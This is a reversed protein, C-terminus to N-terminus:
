ICGLLEWVVRSLHHTYTYKSVHIYIWYIHIYGISAVHGICIDIWTNKRWVLRRRKRNRESPLQASPPCMIYLVLPDPLYPANTSSIPSTASILDWRGKQDGWCFGSKWCLWPAKQLLTTNQYPFHMWISIGLVLWRLTNGRRSCSESGLFSRHTSKSSPNRTPYPLVWSFPLLFCFLLFVTHTHGWM